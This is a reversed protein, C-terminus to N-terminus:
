PADWEVAMKDGLYLEKTVIVDEQRPLGDIYYTTNHSSGYGARIPTDPITICARTHM